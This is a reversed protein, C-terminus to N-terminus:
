EHFNLSGSKKAEKANIGILIALEQHDINTCNLMLAFLGFCYCFIMDLASAQEWIERM